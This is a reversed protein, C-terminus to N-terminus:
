RCLQSITLRNDNPVKKPRVAGTRDYCVANTSFVGRVFFVIWRGYQQIVTGIGEGMFITELGYASSCSKMMRATSEKHPSFKDKWVTYAINLHQENCSSPLKIFPKELRAKEEAKRKAPTSTATSTKNSKQKSSLLGCSVSRFSNQTTEYVKDWSNKM